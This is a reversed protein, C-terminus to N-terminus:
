QRPAAVQRIAALISRRSNSFNAWPDKRLRTLRQRVNRLTFHDGRIDDDLEEWRLPVSVPAGARARTSYAAVATAGRGNRLYDIFIKGARKTKSMNTLYRDPANRAISEAVNKTFEKAEEWDVEPAVPVVIHLGKGGTTKVFAELGLEAVRRRLLRAAEVVRRWALGSDPDLDFILQDPMEVHEARSGWTHIELVGMQVLSILGPLSDIMVYRGSAKREKVNIRKFSEPLNEEIHKQYFCKRYGEPCRVMTLPRLAVHPLIWDAIEEYYRALELKTINAEPYLVREPNSLTVGAITTLSNQRATASNPEPRERSIKRASKDERLGKFSPHRLMGDRTWGTFEIEAAYRPQVWHVGERRPLRPPNAFPPSPTEIKELRARLDELSRRNFGTGVKGAYILVSRDNNVGLLLAGLGTRSGSPETFGGIVFEQSSHCKIKFWDRARGARYPANKRKAIIGELGGACARRYFEEGNGTVHDSFRVAATKPQQELLGALLQKRAELPVARLDHGDFFPLDFVYYILRDTESRGLAEQLSQFNSSGDSELVVIEGDLFVASVPLRAAATALVGFRKTWDNGERTFFRAQGGEIRCLARYGDFKIEYLWEQGEPVADLLTTLEPDVFGPLKAPVAASHIETASRTSKGHQPKREGRNRVKRAVSGGMM